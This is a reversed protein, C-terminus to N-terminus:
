EWGDRNRHHAQAAPATREDTGTDCTLIERRRRLWEVPFNEDCAFAYTIAGIRDAEGPSTDRPGDVLAADMASVFADSLLARILEVDLRVEHRVHPPVARMARQLPQRVDAFRGARLAHTAIPMMAAVAALECAGESPSGASQAVPTMRARINNRHWNIAAELSSVPMGRHKLATVRGPSIGLARGIDAQSLIGNLKMM